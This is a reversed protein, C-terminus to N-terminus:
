LELERSKIKRRAQTKKEQAVDSGILGAWFTQEDGTICSKLAALAYVIVDLAENRKGKSTLEWVDRSIGGTFKKVRREATLQEFFHEDFNRRLFEDDAGFHILEAQLKGYVEEKGADVNLIVLYLGADILGVKQILPAGFTSKGKIAFRGQHVRQRCYNYVHDTSFGSDIFTRAIKLKTGDAKTFTADLRRDLETWTALNTPEGRIVDACIGFVEKANFGYVAYELRNAQVDVGATLILAADPIAASYQERKDVLQADEFEGPMEYSLGFRTNMVVAERNPNGRAELWERMLETWKLWPSAFGNVFFSRVGNALAPANQAIYLQEAQRMTREDFFEGCSPCRWKVSRVIAMRVGASNEKLEYDCNMQQYTLLEVSGCNPCVHRWEEQTGLEYEIDIRSRGKVTPTSFLAVKADFYTSTRKAALDIPDGEKTAPPYRDVEDCLLIKIPRSALGSTSNAGVLIVRGGKFFKSLITENPTRATKDAYFLPKLVATEQIMRSLRSKSFDEAEFLNPQIIMLTAPDLHVTRGVINLLLESKGTQSSAKVAIRSIRNDTFADMVPKFYPVRSTKYRGPEASERPLQRYEDAWQSVTMRPPPKITASYVKWLEDIKKM